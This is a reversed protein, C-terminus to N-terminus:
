ESADQMIANRGGLEISFYGKTDTYGEGHPSGNCVTEIVVRDPPPTGDEMMVRGSVFIPQTISVTPTQTPNTPNTNTPTTTRGPSPTTTGPTTGTTNGGGTTPPTTTAGRGQGIAAVPIMLGVAATATIARVWIRSAM